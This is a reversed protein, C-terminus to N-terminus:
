LRPAFVHERQVVASGSTLGPTGTPTRLDALARRPAATPGRGSISAAHGRYGGGAHAPPPKANGLGPGEPRTSAMQISRNFRSATAMTCVVLARPTTAGSGRWEPELRQAPDSSGIRFRHALRQLRGPYLYPERLRFPYPVVLAISGPEGRDAFGHTPSASRALTPEVGV